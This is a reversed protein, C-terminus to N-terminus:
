QTSLQFTTKTFLQRVYNGHKKNEHSFNTTHLIYSITGEASRKPCYVFQLPDTSSSFYTTIHDKILWEFIKIVGSTLAANLCSSANNKQVLVVTSLLSRLRLCLYFQQMVQRLNEINFGGLVILTTSNTKLLVLCLTYNLCPQVQTQMLHSKSLWASLQASSM